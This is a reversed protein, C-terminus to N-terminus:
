GGPGVHKKKSSIFKKLVSVMKKDQTTFQFGALDEGKKKGKTNWKVCAGSKFQYTVGELNLKLRIDLCTDATLLSNTRAVMG